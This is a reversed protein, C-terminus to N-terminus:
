PDLAFIVKVPLLMAQIADLSLFYPLASTQISPTLTVVTSRNEELACYRLTTKV